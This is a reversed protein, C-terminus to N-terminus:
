RYTTTTYIKEFEEIAKKSIYKAKGVKIGYIRAIQSFSMYRIFRDKIMISQLPTLKSCIDCIVRKRDALLDVLMDVDKEMDVIKSIMNGIKDTTGSSQVYERDSPVTTSTARCKLEYIDALKENIMNDIREISYLYEKTQM